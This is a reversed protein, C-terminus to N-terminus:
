YQHSWLLRNKKLADAEVHRKRQSQQRRRGWRWAKQLNELNSSSTRTSLKYTESSHHCSHRGSRGLCAYDCLSTFDVNCSSWCPECQLAIENKEQPLLRCYFTSWWDVLLILVDKWWKSYVAVLMVIFDISL